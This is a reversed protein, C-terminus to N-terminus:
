QSRPKVEVDYYAVQGDEGTAPHIAQIQFTRGQLDKASHALIDHTKQEMQPSTERAQGKERLAEAPIRYTVTGRLYNESVVAVGTKAAAGRAPQDHFWSRPTALVLLLIAAVMLDYPWSGREYSWFVMNRFGRWARGM